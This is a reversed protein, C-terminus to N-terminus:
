ARTVAARNGIDVGANWGMTCLPPNSGGYSWPAASKCDAAMLREAVQACDCVSVFMSGIQGFVDGRLRLDDVRGWEASAKGRLWSLPFKGDTHFSQPPIVPSFSVRSSAFPSSGGVTQNCILHEVLQAVGARVVTNGARFVLGLCRDRLLNVIALTVVPRFPEAIQRAPNERAGSAIM